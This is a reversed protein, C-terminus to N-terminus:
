EGMVLQALKYAIIKAEIEPGACKMCAWDGLPHRSYTAPKVLALTIGKTKDGCRECYAHNYGGTFLHEDSLRLRRNRTKPKTAVTM